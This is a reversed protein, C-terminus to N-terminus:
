PPADRPDPAGAAIWTAFDALTAADLKGSDQPMKVGEIEHRLVKMLYSSDPDGPVITPGSDGGALLGARSDITLGSDAREASNHCSYCREVLVPRIRSEFFELDDATTVAAVVPMAWAFFGLHLIATRM